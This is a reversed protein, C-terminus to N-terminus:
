CEYEGFAEIREGLINSYEEMADFQRCLRKMEKLGVKYFMPSREIFEDLKGIKADLELKEDVVRRQHPMMDEYKM